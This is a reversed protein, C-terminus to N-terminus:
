TNSEPSLTTVYRSFETHTFYHWALAESIDRLTRSWDTLRTELSVRRGPPLTTALEFIDTLRLDAALRTAFQQERSAFPYSKERPLGDIHRALREVQFAVGRPNSEDTILLDLVAPAQLNGGYRSRYTMSSDAIELAAQLVATEPEVPFVLTSRLLELTNLTREVRRGIDLFRWGQGRTMNEMALGSFAALGTILQNLLSLAESLRPLHAGNDPLDEVLRSLVRWTDLSLRDRVVWAARNLRTFASQVSNPWTADFLAAVSSREVAKEDLEPQFWNQGQSNPLVLGLGRIVASLEKGSAGSNEETLRSIVCRVIRITAEARELYRGLWYLNDAARSPLNSFTRKIEIRQGAPPLLSYTDVLGTTRAWTDKTGGGRQMSIVLSDPSESFRTLGGPMVTYSDGANAAAFSRLMMYRPVLGNGNWVPVTSPTIREQAVYNFPKVRIADRLASRETTTLSEVIVPNWGNSSFAPAILLGEFNDQVYKFHEPDACWWTRVSPLKLDEGLVHKCLGPLLARLAPAELLGSGLPNAIAVNGSRTAQLVGVLGSSSELGFELPDCRQDDMRRLIVDVRSLGEVTKLYVCGDRVTLDEDQVLTFGLYRALYSHEFYSEHAPGPSLLVISPNDRGAPTLERLMTRFREFFVALRRVRCEHTAAPFTRTTVLRNELAYGAGSPAQTRDAVAMWAGDRGRAIDVAYAYLVHAKTAYMGHCARLFAPNAYVFAPPVCRDTLLRQPGYLDRLLHDLLVARQEIGAELTAWEAEAHIQPVLDVAWPRNGDKPDGYVNYSVGNEEILASAQDYRQQLDGAGASDIMGTFDVWHERVSGDAEVMEDFRGPHTKYSAFVSHTTTSQM